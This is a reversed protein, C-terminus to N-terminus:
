RTLVSLSTLGEIRLPNRILNRASLEVDRTADRYLEYAVVLAPRSKLLELTRLRPLDEDPPPVAGVLAGRVAGLEFIMPDSATAELVDIQVLLRAVVELADDLSAYDVRAASRVAGTLAGQGILDVVAQSNRNQAQTQSGTGAVVEPTITFLVEYAELANAANSASARMSSLAVDVAQVLNAPSTALTSANNILNTVADETAAVNAAVGGFVNLRAITQGLERLKISLAERVSNSVGETEADGEFDAGGQADMSDGAADAQREASVSQFPQLDQGQEVFELRFRAMRGEANTESQEYNTCVAPIRGITPHVLIGGGDELRDVLRLAREAYDDGVIYADVNFVRARRGLEEVYPTDRFPYEHVGARHGGSRSTERIGFGIGRFSAPRLRDKWSM